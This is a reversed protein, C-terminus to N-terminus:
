LIACTTDNCHRILQKYQASQINIPLVTHAIIHRTVSTLRLAFRNTFTASTAKVPVTNNGQISCYKSHTGNLATQVNQQFRKVLMTTLRRQSVHGNFLIFM